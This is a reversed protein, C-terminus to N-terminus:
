TSLSKGIFKQPPSGPLPYIPQQVTFLTKNFELNRIDWHIPCPAVVTTCEFLLAIFKEIYKEKIQNNKLNTEWNKKSFKQRENM